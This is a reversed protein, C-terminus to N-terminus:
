EKEFPRRVEDIRGPLLAEFLRWRRSIDGVKERGGVAESQGLCEHANRVGFQAPADDLEHPLDGAFVICHASLLGAGAPRHGM